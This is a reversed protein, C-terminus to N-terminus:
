SPSVSPSISTSVSPSVSVSVSPSKSPSISPSTSFLDLVTDVGQRSFWLKHNTDIWLGDKDSPCPNSSYTKGFLILGNKVNLNRISSYPKNKYTPM